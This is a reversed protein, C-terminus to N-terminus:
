LLDAKVIGYNYDDVINVYEINKIKLKIEKFEYWYNHNKKVNLEKDNDIEILFLLPTKRSVEYFKNVCNNNKNKTEYNFNIGLLINSALNLFNKNINMDQNKIVIKKENKILKIFNKNIKWDNFIFQYIWIKNPRINLFVEKNQEYKEDNPIKNWINYSEKSINMLLNCEELKCKEKNKELNWSNIESKSPIRLPLNEEIENIVRNKTPVQYILELTYFYIEKFVKKSKILYVCDRPLVIEFENVFGEFKDYTFPINMYYCKTNKPLIITLCVRKELEPNYMKEGWIDVWMYYPNIATSNIGLERYVDGENLNLLLDDNHLKLRRFTVTKFPLRPCKEFVTDLINIVQLTLNCIEDSSVSYKNSFTKLLYENVVICKGTYLRKNIVSNYFSHFKHNQTNKYFLIANKYFVYTDNYYIKKWFDRYHEELKISTELTKKVIEM